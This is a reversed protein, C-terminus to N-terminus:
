LARSGYWARFDVGICPVVECVVTLGLANHGFVKEGALTM